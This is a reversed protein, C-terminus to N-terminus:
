PLKDIATNITDREFECEVLQKYKQFDKCIDSYTVNTMKGNIMFKLSVTYTSNFNDRFTGLRSALHGRRTEGSKYKIWFTNRSLNLDTQYYHNSLDDGGQYLIPEHILIETTDIVKYIAM